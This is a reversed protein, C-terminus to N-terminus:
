LLSIVHVVLLIVIFCADFYERVIFIYKLHHNTILHTGRVLLPYCLGETINRPLPMKTCSTAGYTLFPLFLYRRHLQTILTGGTCASFFTLKFLPPLKCINTKFFNHFIFHQAVCCKSRPWYIICCNPAPIVRNSDTNRM